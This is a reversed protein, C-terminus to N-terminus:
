SPKRLVGSGTGRVYSSRRPPPLMGRDVKGNITRPLAEMHVYIRPVMCDPLLASLQTYLERAGVEATRDKDCVYYAMLRLEGATDPIAVVVADQVEDFQNIRAAIEELEIRHGRIKVQSDARGIYEIASACITWRALDGTRYMRAGGQQAFPDAIFRTATLSTRGLYGRAIGVGGLYLEGVVGPPSLQGNEDLIYARMNSIPIGIPISDDQNMRDAFWSTADVTAETPGYVNQLLLEPFAKYFKRSLSSPIPEGGCQVSKLTKCEQAGPDDLFADLTAPVFQIFTIGRGRVLEVLYFPEKHGGPRAVVLTAGTVLPLFIEPVSADFSLPAKHLCLDGPTIGCAKKIWMLLNVISKHEVAVGKPVGTSGSTYTVYALNQPAPRDDDSLNETSYHSWSNEQAYVPILTLHSDVGVIEEARRPDAILVHASSSELMYRLRAVPYEPALPVYACGAKLIAILVTIMEASRDMCVAIRSEKRAGSAILHRALQNATANLQAFTLHTAEFVLATADPTENTRAEFLDHLCLMPESIEKAIEGGQMLLLARDCDPLVSILHAPSSTGRELADLLRKITTTIYEHIRFASIESALEFVGLLQHDHFELALKIRYFEAQGCESFKSIPGKHQETSEALSSGSRNIVLLTSPKATGSSIVQVASPWERSTPTGDLNLSLLTNSDIVLRKASVDTLDVALFSGANETRRLRKIHPPAFICLHFCVKRSSSICALIQAWAVLLLSDVAVGLQGAAWQIRLLEDKDFLIVTRMESKLRADSDLLHFPRAITAEDGLATGSENQDFQSV